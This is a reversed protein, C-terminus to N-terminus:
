VASGVHLAARAAGRGTHVAGEMDGAV